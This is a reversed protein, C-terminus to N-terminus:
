KPNLKIFEDIADRLGSLSDGYVSTEYWVGCEPVRTAIRVYGTDDLRVRIRETQYEYVKKEIM